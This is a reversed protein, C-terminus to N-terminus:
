CQDVSKQGKRMMSDLDSFIVAGSGGGKRPGM